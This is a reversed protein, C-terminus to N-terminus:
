WYPWPGYGPRWFPGFGGWPGMGAGWYMQQTRIRSDFEIARTYRAQLHDLVDDDVGENRLKAFQRGSLPLVTRTDDIRRIIDPAPVGDKSLQVIQEATLPEIRPVTACGSVLTAVFVATAAATRWPAATTSSSPRM